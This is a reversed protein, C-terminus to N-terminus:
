RCIGKLELAKIYAGAVLGKSNEREIGNQRIVVLFDV